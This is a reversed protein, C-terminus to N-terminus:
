TTLKVLVVFFLIVLVICGLLIMLATKIEKSYYDPHSLIYLARGPRSVNPDNSEENMEPFIAGIPVRAVRSFSLTMEKKTLIVKRSWDAGSLPFPPNALAFEIADELSTKPDLYFETTLKRYRNILINRQIWRYKVVLKQYTQSSGEGYTLESTRHSDKLEGPHLDRLEVGTEQYTPLLGQHAEEDGSM